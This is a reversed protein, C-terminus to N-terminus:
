HAGKILAEWTKADAKNALDAISQNRQKAVAELANVQRLSLQVVGRVKMANPIDGWKAKAAQLQADTLGFAQLICGAMIQHGIPNLHIGDDAIRNPKPTVVPVGDPLKVAAQMLPNVDALLCHKDKALARISENYAVLKQNNAHNQDETFMTVTLLMVEIKAAQSQDVMGSINKIFQEAPVPQAGGGVDNIGCQIIVWDPKKAIVDIGIRGALKGSTHRKIGAPIPTIKLGSTNLGSIVLNVFGSPAGPGSGFATISDGLFALTQGDKIAIASPQTAPKLEAQASMVLTYLTLIILSIKIKM